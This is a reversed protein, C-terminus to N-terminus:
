KKPVGYFRVRVGDATFDSRGAVSTIRQKIIGTQKLIFETNALQMIRTKRASEDETAATALSVWTINWGQAKLEEVSKEIASKDVLGPLSESRHPVVIEKISQGLELPGRIMLRPLTLYLPTKRGQAAATVIIGSGNEINVDNIQIQAGKPIRVTSSAYLGTRAVFESTTVVNKHAEISLESSQITETLLPKSGLPILGLDGESLQEVVGTREEVLRNFALAVGLSNVSVPETGTARWARDIAVPSYWTYTSAINEADNYLKDKLWKRCAKAHRSASYQYYFEQITDDDNTGLASRWLERQEEINKETPNLFPDTSSFDYNVPNQVPNTHSRVKATISDSIDNFRRGATAVNEVVYHTFTSLHDSDSFGEATDGPTTAYFIYSNISSNRRQPPAYGKSVVNKDNEDNVLFGGPSRCADIVFIILGPDHGAILDRIGDVPIAFDTVKSKPVKLPLDTPALFNDPGFSFGHGSFYFVVISGPSIKSRFEPLVSQEFEDVRSVDPRYVVDFKLETLRDRMREGDPLASNIPALHKYNKNGIVLAVRKPEEECFPDPSNDCNPVQGTIRISLIFFLGVCFLFTFEQKWM